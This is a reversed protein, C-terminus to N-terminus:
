NIKKELILNFYSSNNKIILNINPLIDKTFDLEYCIEYYLSNLDFIFIKTVISSIYSDLEEGLNSFNKNFEILKSEKLLRFKESYSDFNKKIDNSIYENFNSLSELIRKISYSSQVLFFVIIYLENNNFIVSNDTKVIYGLKDVTRIKDFLPENFLESIINTILKYKIIKKYVELDCKESNYIIKIKKLNWFRIVCNNIENPNINSKDIKFNKLNIKLDKLDINDNSLLYKNPNLSLTNIIDNFVLNDNLISTTNNIGIVIYYEQSYKLCELIKIKFEDFTLNNIFKLTDDPMLNNNLLQNFYSLCIVHPSEYKFNILNEKMDHIIDNFYKEINQNNLIVDPHILKIINCIFFYLKYNIGYFNYILFDRSLSITFSLMYNNMIDLFYNLIKECLSIYINVIIKNFKDLLLVNKRFITITAIPKYYKNYELVYIKRKLQDNSDILKPLLKKNVIEDNYNKIIFNKIGIINEFNFNWDILNYMIEYNKLKLNEIFYLSKYWKSKIFKKESKLFNINTIIKIKISNIIKIYKEYILNSYEPVYFKRIIAESINGKMMNEVVTNSVSVADDNSNYLLRLMNIKTYNMYIKKFLIEPIKKLKNIYKIVSFYTKLFKKINKDIMLLQLNINASNDYFYEVFSSINKIINNEKLYYSLSEFYESSLLYNIFFILHYDIINTEIVNFILYFNLYIYESSSKFIIFNDDILKLSEKKFLKFNNDSIKKPIDCFYPVYNEFMTNIDKSDVICIYMNDTTYYKNYYNLIDKKTINKLSELNGTGFKVYKSNNLIFKKFIDDIIWNDMLINKKHESDIIEMESKIHKEELLPKRFFWSLIEIAKKLFSTEISLYYCTYNDATFANDYGGNIQIYSHYDNQEPFKESGMFLLHELFHATGPFEDQLYGAGIAVSCSSSNIDPDSILIIKIKNDLEFGKINRKENNMIKIDFYQINNM